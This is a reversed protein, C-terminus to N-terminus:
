GVTQGDRDLSRLRRRVAPALGGATVAAATLIGGPGHPRVGVETAVFAGLLLAGTGVLPALSLFAVPRARRGLILATWGSGAVALLGLLVAAWLLAVPVAPVGDPLSAEALPHSPRPGQLLAIGSGIIPAGLSRAELFENRGMTELVLVPPRRPLVPAVDEWYPLTVRDRLTTDHTRRGALLDSPKGVFLHLDEQRDPPLAMRIMRERLPADYVVAPGRADVVFVFPQRPPLQAVYGAATEAEQLAEPRMLIPYKYWRLISPIALLAVAGLVVTAGAVNWGVRNAAWWVAAGAAVVGPVAILIGLFRHPPLSFRDIGLTVVGFLVGVACAMTWGVIMRGSFSRRTEEETDVGSRRVFKLVFLGMAAAASAPWLRAVDTVLKPAYEQPNQFIEFTRFPARLVVLILFGLVGVTWLGVSTLLRAEERLEMARPREARREAVLSLGVALALGVEFVALFVWHALGAAVLLAVSAWLAVRRNAANALVILAAVELAVNLLNAVNEGVLRTAGLVAGGVTVTVLWVKWGRGTLSMALAGVAMALMTPLLQAFLVFLELQSRGTVSGLLASLVEHGPRSATSVPGLGARGAFTARWIYWPPDFGAPLRAHRIPYTGFYFLFIALSVVVVTVVARGWRENPPV